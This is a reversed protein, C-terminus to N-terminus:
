GTVDHNLLFEGEMITTVRGDSLTKQLDYIYAGAKIADAMEALDLELRNVGTITLGSGISFLFITRLRDASKVELNFDSSQIDIPITYDPDSYYEWGRWLSDGRKHIINHKAAVDSNSSTVESM